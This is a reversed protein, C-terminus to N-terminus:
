WTAGTLYAVAGSRRLIWDIPVISRLASTDTQYMSRTPAAVTAPTGPTGIALPVTNEHLTTHISVKFTPVGLASAFAAADVMIAVGAAVTPSVLVSLTSSPALLSFSAAQAPGVILVPRLAPAIAGVLQRVDGLM